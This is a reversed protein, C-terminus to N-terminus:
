FFIMIEGRFGHGRGSQENCKEQDEEGDAQTAVKASQEKLAVSLDEERGEYWSVQENASYKLLPEKRGEFWSVQEKAIYKLLPSELSFVKLHDGGKWKLELKGPASSLLKAGAPEPHLQPTVTANFAAWTSRHELVLQPLKRMM